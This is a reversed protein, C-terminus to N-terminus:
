SGSTSGRARSASRAILFVGAGLLAWVIGAGGGATCGCGGGGQLPGSGDNPYYGECVVEFQLEAPPFSADSGAITAFLRANQLGPLEGRDGGVFDSCVAHVIAFDRGGAPTTKFTGRGNPGVEGFGTRAWVRGNVELTWRTLPLWPRIQESPAVDLTTWSYKGSPGGCSDFYDQTAEGSGTVVLTGIETPLQSRPGTKVESEHTGTAGPQCTDEFRATYTADTSLEVSPRLLMMSEFPELTAPVVSGTADLLEFGADPGVTQAGDAALVIAPANAPIPQTEAPIVRGPM